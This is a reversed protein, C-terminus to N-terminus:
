AIYAGFRQGALRWTVTPGQGLIEGGTTSYTYTLEEGDPDTASVTLTVTRRNSPECFEVNGPCFTLAPASSEFKAIEPPRKVVRSKNSQQGSQVAVCLGVLVMLAVKTM